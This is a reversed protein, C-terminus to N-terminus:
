SLDDALKGATERALADARLIDSLDQASLSGHRSLTEAVIQSIRGFAIRGALFLGLCICAVLCLCVILIIWGAKSM